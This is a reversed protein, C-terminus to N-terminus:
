YAQHNKGRQDHMQVPVPTEDAQIYSGGLLEKGIAVAVPIFLDGAHMVWGDM